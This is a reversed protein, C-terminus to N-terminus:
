FVQYYKKTMHYASCLMLKGDCDSRAATCVLMLYLLILSDGDKQSRIAKLKTDDFFDTPFHIYKM